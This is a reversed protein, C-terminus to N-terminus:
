ETGGVPSSLPRLRPTFSSILHTLFSIQEPGLEGTVRLIVLHACVAAATLSLATGIPLAIQDFTLAYAPIFLAAASIAHIWVRKNLRANVTRVALARWFLAGLVAAIAMAAAAAAAGQVPIPLGLPHAVFAYLIATQTAFTAVSGAVSVSLKEAGNIIQRYPQTLTAFIMAVTGLVVVPGTDSYQRGLLLFVAPRAIPTIALLFPFLVLALQREARGCLAFAEEPRGDAYARSMSPFILGAVAASLFNLVSGLRMGASYEGVQATGAFLELFLRDLRDGVSTVVAIVFMPLGFTFYSKVLSRNPWALPLTRLLWLYVILLLIVTASDAAALGIAGAGLVVIGVRLLANLIQTITFPLDKRVVDQFATLTTNPVMGLQTAVLGVVSLYFVLQGSPGEFSKYGGAWFSILVVLTMVVLGAIKALWAMGMCQALDQGESIRKVHANGIGFDSLSQFAGVYAGAYAVIGLVDPGALRAVVIGGVVLVPQQLLNLGTSLTVKQAISSNNTALKV